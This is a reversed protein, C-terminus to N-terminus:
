GGLLHLREELFFERYSDPVGILNAQKDFSINHVKVENGQSELYILSVDSPKIKGKKIEIRARNIMYDSHTELVFGSRDKARIRDILWTILTAQAKPYLHMEPQQILCWHPVVAVPHNHAGHSSVFLIPLVQSVGYGAHAINVKSGCFEIQLEFPDNRDRGWNRVSIDTFLGSPKGFEVWLKRIKDWKAKHHRSLNMLYIPLDSEGTTEYIRKPKSRAPAISQASTALLARCASKAVDKFEDDDAALLFWRKMVGLCNLDSDDSEPHIYIKNALRTISLRIGPHDFSTQTKPATTKGRFNNPVKMTFVIKYKGIRLEINNIITQMNIDRGVECCLKIEDGFEFGIKFQKLLSRSKRAVHKFAGMEFPEYNFNISDEYSSYYQSRVMLNGLAHLCGLVTSKGTSNEGVILTLPRLNFEQMGKFCRVNEICLKM